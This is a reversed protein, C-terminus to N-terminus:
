FPFVLVTLLLYFCFCSPVSVIMGLIWKWTILMSSFSLLHFWLSTLINSMSKFTQLTLILWHWQQSNPCREQQKLFSYWCCLQFCFPKFHSYYLIRYLLYNFFFCSFNFHIFVFTLFLFCVIQDLQLCVPDSVRGFRLVLVKDITDRIISDVESKQSLNTLLNSM